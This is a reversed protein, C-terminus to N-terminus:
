VQQGNYLEWMGFGEPNKGGLGAEYTVTILERSGFLEYIGTWGQITTNKFRVVQLNREPSVKIPKVSLQLNDYNLDAQITSFKKIANNELLESFNIEGPAYYHTKKNGNGDEFTSYITLPALMRILIKEEFAPLTLVEIRSVFVKQGSLNFEMGKFCGEGLDCVIDDIASSFYFSISRKFLLESKSHKIGKELIRSFTFLKFRRNEFVYGQNHLKSALLPSFTRYILAQLVYNYHMPLIIPEGDLSEYTLKIRM